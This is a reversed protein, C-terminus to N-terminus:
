GPGERRVGGTPAIVPHATAVRGGATGTKPHYSHCMACGSPVEAKAASEGLHCTRCQAIGPLLLDASDSSADAKHCDTCQEKRHEQHDFTGPMLYSAQQVVPMVALTGRGRAPIHCEGCLGDKGMAGALLSVGSRPSGFNAHYTGGSAFQGPRRRVPVVARAPARDQALLDARAQAIDGHRLTRFTSGVKDYVLSHCGECDTEMEVPLFGAGDATQRHCDRCELATGYTGLRSAMRAVGGRRDMHMRHPFNLGTWQRVQPSVATRVPVKQGPMTFVAPQLQPHHTGFDAANALTTDTLRRDMGEHCSSCFQQRTPEMRGAGEHETHCDTCAGPGPKNFTHAVQWLLADGPSLPGRATNQRPISAHDALDTHCAVCTEDRVAEFPKVHCSECSDELGHHASSLAGTSWSADMMVVGPRKADPKAVDRTLHSWVPIALFAILVAVIGAWAMVRKGPMAHTLAFGAEREAKGGEAAEARRVTLATIGDDDRALTLRYSGLALEAGEAPDVAAETVSRGDITFGITGLAELRVQGGVGPAISVHQQEVALDPLHVANEAARGVVIQAADVMRERRIERGTATLEVTRIRFTM